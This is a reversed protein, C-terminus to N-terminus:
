QRARPDDNLTRVILTRLSGIAIWNSNCKTSSVSYNKFKLNGCKSHVSHYLPVLPCCFPMSNARMILRWWSAVVAAADFLISIFYLKTWTTPRQQSVVADHVSKTENKSIWNAYIHPIYASQTSYTRNMWTYISSHAATANFANLKLIKKKM